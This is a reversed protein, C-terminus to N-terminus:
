GGCGCDKWGKWRWGATLIYYLTGDVTIRQVESDLFDVDATNLVIPNEGYVLTGDSQCLSTHIDNVEDLFDDDVEIYGDGYRVFYDVDNKLDASNISSYYEIEDVNNEVASILADRITKQIIQGSVSLIVFYTLTVVAILIVSFWLTIKMRISLRKM